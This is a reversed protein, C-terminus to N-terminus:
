LSGERFWCKIEHVLAVSPEPQTSAVFATNGSGQEAHVVADRSDPATSHLRSFFHVPM